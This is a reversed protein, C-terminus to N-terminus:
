GSLLQELRLIRTQNFRISTNNEDIAKGLSKVDNDIEELQRNLDSIKSRHAIILNEIQLRYQNVKLLLSGSREISLRRPTILKFEAFMTKNKVAEIYEGNLYTNYLDCDSLQQIAELKKSKEDRIEIVQAGILSKQAYLQRIQGKIDNNETCIREITRESNAIMQCIEDINLTGDVGIQSNQPRENPADIPSNNPLNEPPYEGSAMKKRILYNARARCKESCYNADARKAEFETSCLMCLKKMIMYITPQCNVTPM